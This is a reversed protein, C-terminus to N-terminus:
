AASIERGNLIRIYQVMSDWTERLKKERIDGAPLDIADEVASVMHLASDSLSPYRRAYDIAKANLKHKTAWAARMASWIDFSNAPM